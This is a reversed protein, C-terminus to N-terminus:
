APWAPTEGNYTIVFLIDQVQGSQFPTTPVIVEWNGAPSRGIMPIWASANGRRTSFVAGVSNPDVPLSVSGGVTSTASGTGPQTLRLTAQIQFSAGDNPVFYLLVQSIALNQVNPPFDQLLTQFQVTIQAATPDDPNNLTYWQDAFQQRFSYACDGSFSRNLGRIVEQRYDASDLATYDITLLVDAITSYDVPNSAQPMVFEWNTDVGLNEFPLLM